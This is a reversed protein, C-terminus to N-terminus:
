APPTTRLKESLMQAVPAPVFSEIAGGHRGVERAISSSLFIHESASALFVTEIDPALQRNTLAMMLEYEFDSVARLGRVIVTAGVERAFEVTLGHFQAIEVGPLDSVTARLMQAREEPTCLPHKAENEAVAVILRTCLKAARRIIDVHGHTLIDFTGPYLATLDPRSM